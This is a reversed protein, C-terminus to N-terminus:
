CSFDFGGTINQQTIKEKYNITNDAGLSHLKQFDETSSTTTIFLGMQHALSVLKKGFHGTAGHV